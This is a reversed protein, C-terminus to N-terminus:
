RTVTPSEARTGGHVSRAVAYVGIAMRVKEDDSMGEQQCIQACHWRRDALMLAAATRASDCTAATGLRRGRDGSPLILVTVIVDAIDPSRTPIM